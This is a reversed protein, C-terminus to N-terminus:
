GRASSGRGRRGRRRADPSPTTARREWAKGGCVVARRAIEEKMDECGVIERSFHLRGGHGQVIANNYEGTLRYDEVQSWLLRRRAFPTIQTLGDEDTEIRRVRYAHWGGLFLLGCGVAAWLPGASQTGPLMGQGAAWSLFGGTLGFVLPALSLARNARTRYHYVRAGVGVRGGSWRASEGGLAELDTRPRWEKDAANEAYRRIIVMLLTAGSLVPLFDFEGQRTEVVYRITLAGPGPAIGYGTVDAWAAEVRRLGDEFTIGNTDATIREAKRRGAARYQALPVLFILGISGVLLLYLAATTLTMAWGVLGAMTSLQMAPKILLYIVFTLFLKTWVRPAWRNELTIYHSVRPWPDVARTGLIEWGSVLGHFAQRKVQERLADAGSWLNTVRVNGAATRVVSVTTPSAVGSSRQQRTPINEYYDRVEDWRATKWPGMGRWRLGDQGSIVRARVLWLVAGLAGLLCFASIWEWIATEMLSPPGTKTPAHSAAAAVVGYVTPFLVWAWYVRPPRCCVTAAPKPDPADPPM